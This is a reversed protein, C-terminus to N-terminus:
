YIEFDSTLDSKRLDKTYSKSENESCQHSKRSTHRPFTQWVRLAQGTKCPSDPVPLLIRQM